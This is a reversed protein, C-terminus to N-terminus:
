SNGKENAAEQEKLIDRYREELFSHRHAVECVDAGALVLRRVFAAVDSKSGSVEITNEGICAGEAALMRAANAEPMNLLRITYVDKPERERGIEEIIRGDAMVLVRDCIGQLESFNHGAVLIGRAAKQRVLIKDLEEAAAVDLSVSPEDLLLYDAESLFLMWLALKQRMGMSYKRVPLEVFQACGFPAASMEEEKMRRDLYYELNEKGTMDLFFTPQEILAAITEGDTKVSGSKPFTLGSLVRILTTKGVGNPGALGVIEGRQLQLSVGQLVKKRRYALKIENAQIM